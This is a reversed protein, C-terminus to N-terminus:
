MGNYYTLPRGRKGDKNGPTTLALERDHMKSMALCAAPSNEGGKM